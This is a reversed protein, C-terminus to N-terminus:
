LRSKKVHYKLHNCMSVFPAPVKSNRTGGAGGGLEQGQLYILKEMQSTEKAQGLLRSALAFLFHLFLPFFLFPSANALVESQATDQYELDLYQDNNNM